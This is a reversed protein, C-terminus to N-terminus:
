ECEEIIPHEVTATLFGDCGLLSEPVVQRGLRADADAEMDAQREESRPVLMTPHVAAIEAAALFAEAMSSTRYGRGHHTCGITLTALGALLLRM